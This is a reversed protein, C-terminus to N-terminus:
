EFNVEIKKLKPKEYVYIKHNEPYKNITDNLLKLWRNNIKKWFNYSAVGTENEILSSNRPIYSSWLFANFLWEKPPIIEFYKGPLTQFDDEDLEGSEFLDKLQSYEFHDIFDLKFNLDQSKLFGELSICNDMFQEM